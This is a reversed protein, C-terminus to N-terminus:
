RSELRRRIAPVIDDMSVREGGVTATFSQLQSRYSEVFFQLAELNRTHVVANLFYRVARETGTINFDVTVSRPNPSSSAYYTEQPQASALGTKGKEEPRKLQTSAM